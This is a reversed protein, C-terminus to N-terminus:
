RTRIGKNYGSSRTSLLSQCHFKEIKRQKKDLWANINTYKYWISCSQIITQKMLFLVSNDM